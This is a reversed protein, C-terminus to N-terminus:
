PAKWRLEGIPPKAFPIGLFTQIGTKTDYNGEIVGNIIKTQVAITNNEQAKIQVPLLVFSIMVLLFISLALKM